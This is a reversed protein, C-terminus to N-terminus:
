SVGEGPRVSSPEAGSHHRQAFTGITTVRDEARGTVPREEM